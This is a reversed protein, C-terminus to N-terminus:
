YSIAAMRNLTTFTQKENHYQVLQQLYAMFEDYSMHRKAWNCPRCCSVCNELFYGLTGNKRDIGNYIYHDMVKKKMVRIPHLCVVIIVTKNFLYLFSNM